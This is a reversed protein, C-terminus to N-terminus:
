KVKEFWVNKVRGSSCRLGTIEGNENRVFKINQMFWTTSTLLDPSTLTLRINDHRIHSAVLADNDLAITYRTELEPSYFVGTYDSLKTLSLDDEKLRVGNATFSGQTFQFADAKNGANSNFIITADAASVYFESDSRATLTLPGSGPPTVILKGREVSFTVIQTALEYKGAYLKLIEESVQLEPEKVAAAAEKQEILIDKLYIDAITHAIRHPNSSSFNSLVIFTYRQDPFRLLHSRYGADAGGHSITTQGKYNGIVQGFAYSTTDGKNLVARENMQKMVRVNGVKMSHFNESWKALDEATTFLSTAGANAYSLVSKKLGNSTVNFSYARHKVIKEHDDYFLTNTMGLPQFVREDTWKQLTSGTVRYVVEALLTYGTNCYNMEEGPKDNLERQHSILRLVQNHTIVDDLRWGALALLNWQDRLGSTHHILHRITIKQGFDPMEPLYTRIDEDLSLKGEDALLAIAFATFQKSISAVHFITGPTNPIDYEPNASGYGKSFLIRGEKAVAISAGPSGPLTYASMLQDIQKEPTKGKPEIRVVEVDYTGSPDPEDLHNITMKYTGGVRSTFLVAEPGHKGNPSDFNGVLKDQPDHVTITIDIGQQQFVVHIFQDAKLNLHYLHAQGRAMTADVKKRTQLVVPPQAVVQISILLALLSIPTKMQESPIIPVILIGGARRGRSFYCFNVAKFSTRNINTEPSEKDNLVHFNARNGATSHTYTVDCRNAKISLLGERSRTYSRYWITLLFHQAKIFTCIFGAEEKGHHPYDLRTGSKFCIM